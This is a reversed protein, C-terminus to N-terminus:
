SNFAPFLNGAEDFRLPEPATLIEMRPDAAIEPLMAESACLTQLMLTNQIRVIRPADPQPANCTRLALKLAYADNRMVIPLRSNLLFTSTMANIYTKEFDIKEFLRRTVIDAQGIGSAAGESEATLDGMIFVSPPKRKNKAIKEEVLYRLTVAPDACVGSINKGVWDVFLVDLNDPYISPMYAAARRLLAPEQAHIEEAPICHLEATQDFANELIGVGFIVPMKQLILLSSERLREEMGRLGARHCSAAGQQKGCGIVSMKILGSQISGALGPHPKIRNCLIIADADDCLTRSCFVPLGSATSGIQRVSMDSVIPCGTSAETIGYHTLIDKQGEATAAGHSGMAPIIFPSAGRSKVADAIARLIQPMDSIQRSGATIAVRQGPLVREELRRARLQASLELPISRVQQTGFHQRVMFFRPLHVSELAAEVLAVSRFNPM